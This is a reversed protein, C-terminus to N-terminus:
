RKLIRNHLNSVVSATGPNDFAVNPARRVRRQGPNYLWAKRKERNQNLTEHVLLIGGALRAPAEVQQKFYLVINNMKDETMGSKSYLINFQDSFEVLTYDGSRTPAAQVVNREATDARWRLIHNWIVELGNEPIPFPIGEIAGTVGNGDATLEATAAIRKTADYIRQPAAATRRSKYINLKYTDPYAQLLAKHGETLKDAYESVNNNTITFLVSDNSYPDVLHGGDQYRAPPTTLGGNWEPITGDANAAKLGGLPTLENGLKEIDNSEAHVNLTSFLFVFILLRKIVLKM